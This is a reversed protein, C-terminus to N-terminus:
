SVGTPVQSFPAPRGILYGQAYDCGLARLHELQGPTEIGEATVSRGLAQAMDHVGRVIAASTPDGPLGGVFSRDIKIGDIPQDKLMSLSSFGTGFDDLVLRVGLERLDAITRGTAADTGLLATETLEVVLQSSPVGHRELAEAVTDAFGPDVLQRPSVNVGVRADAWGLRRLHGIARSAERVVWEGIPVISGTREAVPIFEDPGVAGLVPDSWRLLAEVGHLGGDACRVIPQAVLRLAGRELATDLATAIAALREREPSAREDEAATAAAPPATAGASARLRRLAAADRMAQLEELAAALLGARRRSESRALRLEIATGLGEALDALHEIDRDQWVRPEDAAVCLSGVAQGDVCVPLGLYARVGAVRVDPLGPVEEVDRIAVPCGRGVVLSCLSAERPGIAGPRLAPVGVAAHVVHQDADIVSVAAIPAGIAQHAREAWPLALSDPRELVGLQEVVRLRAPDDLRATLTCDNFGHLAM